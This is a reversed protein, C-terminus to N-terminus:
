DLTGCCDYLTRERKECHDRRLQAGRLHDTAQKDAIGETKPVRYLM